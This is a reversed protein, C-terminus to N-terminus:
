LKKADFNAVKPVGYAGVDVYMVTKDEKPHVLGPNNRFSFPYVWLPYVKFEEDFIDLRPSNKLLM